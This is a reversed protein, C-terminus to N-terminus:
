IYYQICQWQLHTEADPSHRKHSVHPKKLSTTDSRFSEWRATEWVRGRRVQSDRGFASVRLPFWLAALNRVNRRFYVACERRIPALSVLVILRWVEDFDSSRANQTKLLTPKTSAHTGTAWHYLMANATCLNHNSERSCM